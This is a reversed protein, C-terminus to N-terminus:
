DHVFCLLTLSIFYEGHVVVESLLGFIRKVESFKARRTSFPIGRLRDDNKFLIPKKGGFLTARNHHKAHYFILDCKEFHTKWSEM